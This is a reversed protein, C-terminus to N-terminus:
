SGHWIASISGKRRGAVSFQQEAFYDNFDIEGAAFRQLRLQRAREEAKPSVIFV